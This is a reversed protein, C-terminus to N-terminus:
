IEGSDPMTVPLLISRPGDAVTNYILMSFYYQASSEVDTIIYAQIMDGEVTIVRRSGNVKDVYIKFGRVVGNIGITSRPLRWIAEVATSNLITIHFNTVSVDPATYMSVSLQSLSMTVLYHKM